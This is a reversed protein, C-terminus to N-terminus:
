ESFFNSLFQIISLPNTLNFFPYLITLTYEAIQQLCLICVSFVGLVNSATEAQDAVNQGKLLGDAQMLSAMGYQFHCHSKRTIAAKNKLGILGCNRIELKENIESKETLYYYLSNTKM